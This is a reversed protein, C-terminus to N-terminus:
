STCGGVLREAFQTPLTAPLGRAVQMVPMAVQLIPVAACAFALQVVLLVTPNSLSGV